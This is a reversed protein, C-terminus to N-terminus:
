SRGEDQDEDEDSEDAGAPDLAPETPEDVSVNGPGETSRGSGPPETPEETGPQPLEEDQNLDDSKSEV